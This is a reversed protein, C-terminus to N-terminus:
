PRRWRCRGRRLLTRIFSLMFLTIRIIDPSLYLPPLPSSMVLYLVLTCGERTLLRSPSKRAASMSCKWARNSERWIIVKKKKERMETAGNNCVLCCRVDINKAIEFVNPHLLFNYINSMRKISKGILNQLYTSTRNCLRRANEGVYTQEFWRYVNWMQCNIAILWM